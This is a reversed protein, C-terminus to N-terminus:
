KKLTSESPLPCKRKRLLRYLRPGACHYALSNSIDESSWNFRQQNDELLKMQGASFFNSLQQRMVNSSQIERRYIHNEEELIKNRHKAERLEKVLIDMQDRTSSLEKSHQIIYM